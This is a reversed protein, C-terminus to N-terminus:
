GGGTPTASSTPAPTETGPAETKEAMKAKAAAHIELAKTIEAETFTVGPKDKVTPLCKTKLVNGLDETTMAMVKDKLDKMGDKPHCQGCTTALWVEDASPEPKPPAAEVPRPTPNPNIGTPKAADPKKGGGCGLISIVLAIVFISSLLRFM